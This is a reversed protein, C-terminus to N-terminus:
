SEIFSSRKSTSSTSPVISPTGTLSEVDRYNIYESFNDIENLENDGM